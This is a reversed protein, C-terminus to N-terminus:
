DYAVRDSSGPRALAFSTAIIPCQGLSVNPRGGQVRSVSCRRRELRTIDMREPEAAAVTGEV